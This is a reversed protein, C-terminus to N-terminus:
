QLSICFTGLINNFFTNFGWVTVRVRLVYHLGSCISFRQLDIGLMPINRIKNFRDMGIIAV